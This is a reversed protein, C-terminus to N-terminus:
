SSHGACHLVGLYASWPGVADRYQYALIRSIQHLHTMDHVAWAALLQTLTVAGFAPHRGQLALQSPGLNFTRLEGLNRARLQAFEDLLRALSTHQAEKLHATRDLPDFARNEGFELIRKARALWDVRECHLLHGIVQAATWSDGGENSHTWAEPLDRLLANLAVPTRALLAFTQDLDHEM